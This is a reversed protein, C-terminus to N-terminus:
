HVKELLVIPIDQRGTWLSAVYAYNDVFDGLDVREPNEAIHTAEAKWFDFCHHSDIWKLKHGVDAVIFQVPTEKLLLRIDNRTVYATRQAQIETENTWLTNLPITTIIKDSFNM